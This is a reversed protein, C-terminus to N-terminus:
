GATQLAARLELGLLPPLTVSDEIIFDVVSGKRLKTAAAPNQSVVTQSDYSGTFTKDVSGVKFGSDELKSTASRQDLGEVKPVSKKCGVVALTAVMGVCLKLGKM